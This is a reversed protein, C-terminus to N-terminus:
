FSSIFYLKITNAGIYIGFVSIVNDTQYLYSVKGYLTLAVPYKSMLTEIAKDPSEALLMLTIYVPSSPNGKQKLTKLVLEHVGKVGSM